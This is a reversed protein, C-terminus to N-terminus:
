LALARREACLSCVSLINVCLCVASAPVCFASPFCPPFFFLVHRCPLSLIFLFVIGAHMQASALRGRGGTPLIVLLSHLASMCLAADPPLLGGRSSGAPRAGAGNNLHAARSPRWSESRRRLSEQFLGVWLHGSLGHQQDLYSLLVPSTVMFTSLTKGQASGTPNCNRELAKAKEQHLSTQDANTYGM